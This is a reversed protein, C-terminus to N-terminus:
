GTIAILLVCCVLIAMIGYLFDRRRFWSVSLVLLTPLAASALIALAASSLFYADVINRFWGAEFELGTNELYVESSEGWHSGSIEPTVQSPIMGAIYLVFIGVSLVLGITGIWRFWSAARKEITKM